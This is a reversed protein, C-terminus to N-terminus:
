ECYSSFMDCHADEGFAGAEWQASGEAEFAYRRRADIKKQRNSAM